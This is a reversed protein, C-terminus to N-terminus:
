TKEQFDRVIKNLDIKISRGDLLQSVLMDYVNETEKSTACDLVISVRDMLRTISLIAM